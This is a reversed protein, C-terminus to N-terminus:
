DIHSWRRRRVINYVTSQAIGYKKSIDSPKSGVAWMRRIERVDDPTLKASNPHERQRMSFRNKADKSWHYGSACSSSMAGWAARDLEDWKEYRRKHSESMKRRTEESAKRGLSNQRNKEGIKRKTEESLHKGLNYGGDGGDHLNYSSSNNRFEAIYKMELENLLEVDDVLQVVAFEFSEEGYKNWAAQLYPNDHKGHRLLSRHSDWRDGFNVGTKGIYSKGDKKNTIRYIGFQKYINNLM